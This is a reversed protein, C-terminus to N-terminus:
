KGLKRRKNEKDNKMNEIEKDFYGVLGSDGKIRAEERKALHLEIQRDISEINKRLNKNRSM